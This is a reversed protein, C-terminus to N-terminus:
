RPVAIDIALFDRRAARRPLIDCRAIAFSLFLRYRLM